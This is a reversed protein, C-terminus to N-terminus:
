GHPVSAAYRRPEQRVAAEAARPRAVGLFFWGRARDDVSYVQGHHDCVLALCHLAVFTSNPERAGRGSARSRLVARGSAAM